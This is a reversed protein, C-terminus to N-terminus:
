SDLWRNIMNRTKLKIGKDSIPQIYINKNEQVVVSKGTSTLGIVASIDLGFSECLWATEKSNNAAMEALEKFFLIRTGTEKEITEVSETVPQSIKGLADSHSPFLVWDYTILKRVNVVPRGSRNQLEGLVRASFAPTIKGDIIKIAMNMGNENSSDTQIHAELLNGNLKPSRIYHSSFKPDPNAIRTMSLDQGAHVATPHDIEGMWSNQRLMTQIYDDNSIREMINNAEYMRKNRNIVGFSQLVADFTLYFRSGRGHVKYGFNTNYDEPYSSQEQIWCLASLDRDM